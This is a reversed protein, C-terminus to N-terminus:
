RLDVTAAGIQETTVDNARARLWRSQRCTAHEAYYSYSDLHREPVYAAGIVAFFQTPNREIFPSMTIERPDAALRCRGHLGRCQSTRFTVHRSIEEHMLLIALLFPMARLAKIRAGWWKVTYDALTDTDGPRNGAVFRRNDSM